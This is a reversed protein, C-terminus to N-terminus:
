LEENNQLEYITLYLESIDFDPFKEILYNISDDIGFDGSWKLRDPNLVLMYKDDKKNVMNKSFATFYTPIDVIFERYNVAGRINKYKFSSDGSLLWKFIDAHKISDIMYVGYKNYIYQITLKYIREGKTDGLRDMSFRIIERPIQDKAISQNYKKPYILIGLDEGVELLKIIDDDSVNTLLKIRTLGFLFMKYESNIHIRDWNVLLDIKLYYQPDSTQITTEHSILENFVRPYDNILEYMRIMNNNTVYKSLLEYRTKYKIILYYIMYIDYYKLHFTNRILELTKYNLKVNQDDNKIRIGGYAYESYYQVNNYLLEKYVSDSINNLTSNLILIDMRNLYSIIIMTLETPINLLHHQNTPIIFYDPIIRLIGIITLHYEGPTDDDLGYHNFYLIPNNKDIIIEYKDYTKSIFLSEALIKIMVKRMINRETDGGNNTYDYKFIFHISDDIINIKVDFIKLKITDEEFEFNEYKKFHSIVDSILQNDM